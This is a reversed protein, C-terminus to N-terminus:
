GHRPFMRSSLFVISRAAIRACVFSISSSNRGSADASPCIVSTVRPASMVSSWSSSTCMRLIKCLAELRSEAAFVSPITQRRKIALSLPHIKSGHQPQLEGEAQSRGQDDQKQDANVPDPKEVIKAARHVINQPIVVIADFDAVIHPRRRGPYISKLM